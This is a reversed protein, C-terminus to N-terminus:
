SEDVKVCESLTLGLPTYKALAWRFNKGPKMLPHNKSRDILPSDLSALFEPDVPFCTRLTRKNNGFEGSAQQMEFFAILNPRLRYCASSSHISVLDSGSVRYKKSGAEEKVAIQDVFAESCCERVLAAFKSQYQRHNMVQLFPSIPDSKWPDILSPSFITGARKVLQMFLAKAEAMAKPSLLAVSQTSENELWQSFYVLLFELDDSFDIKSIEQEKKSSEPPALDVSLLSVLVLLVLVLVSKTAPEIVAKHVGAFVAVALRPSIPLKTLEKGILTLSEDSRSLAGIAKLRKLAAEVHSKPPPSPWPFNSFSAVGLAKLFLISSDLPNKEIEPSPFEQMHEGFVNPSYLRYVHGPGVRGARGARQNASAKSTFRVAFRSVGSANFEKRKERGCDIVYRINPITLSTEAVNTAVVVIRDEPHHINAAFAEMQRESAMQAYLPIVQLGSGPGGGTFSVSVLATQSDGEKESQSSVLPESLRSDQGLNFDEEGPISRSELVTVRVKKVAIRDEEEEGSSGEEVACAEDSASSFASCVKHVEAKGTLFVLISGAPLTNHIKRIKDVVLDVYDDETRREYHVVVPHIRNEIQVVAPAASSADKGKPFLSKNDLFDSMRLTASMIVVKLPRGSAKRARVSGSLLGLLMDCNISREHAEDIVIVSYRPLRIDEQIERLLIGDTMFKLRMKENKIRSEYRVQYGVLDPDNLEIGVREALAIAAVRRPQTVGILLGSNEGETFSAEYLFQPVQTSKGCGTDGCVISFDNSRISDVIEQETLVAPLKSRMEDILPDRKVRTLSKLCEDVM